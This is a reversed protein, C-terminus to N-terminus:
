DSALERKTLALLDTFLQRVADDSLPGTNAHALADLLREERGPDLFGWGQSLKHERLERVLQLRANAAELIAHDVETIRERLERVVPDHEPDSARM